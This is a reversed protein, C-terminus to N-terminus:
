LERAELTRLTSGSGSLEYEGRGNVTSVHSSQQQAFVLAADMNIRYDFISGDRVRAVSVCPSTLRSGDAATLDFRLRRHVGQQPPEWVADPAWVGVINSHMGRPATVAGAVAERVNARGHVPEQNALRFVRRRHLVRRLQGCRGPNSAVPPHLDPPRTIRRTGLDARFTCRSSAVMRRATSLRAAFGLETVCRELEDAAAQPALMQLHGFGHFRAPNGRTADALLDNYDKAYGPGRSPDLLEAGPGAASLVRIPSGLTTWRAFDATM